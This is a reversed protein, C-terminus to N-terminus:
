EKGRGNSTKETTLTKHQRKWQTFAEKYGKLWKADSSNVDLEYPIRGTGLRRGEIKTFKASEFLHQGNSTGGVAYFRTIEIGKAGWAELFRLLNAIVM